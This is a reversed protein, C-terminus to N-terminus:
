TGGDAGAKALAEAPTAMLFVQRLFLARYIVLITRNTTAVSRIAPWRKM